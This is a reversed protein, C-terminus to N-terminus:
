TANFRQVFRRSWAVIHRAMNCTSGRANLRGVDHQVRGPYWVYHSIMPNLGHTLAWPWWNLFWIYAFPNSGEGIYNTKFDIISGFFCFSIGLYLLFVLVSLALSRSRNVTTM